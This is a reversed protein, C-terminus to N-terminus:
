MSNGSEYFNLLLHSIRYTVVRCRQASGNEQLGRFIYKVLLPFTLSLKFVLPWKNSITM